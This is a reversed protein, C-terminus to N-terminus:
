DAYILMPAPDALDAEISRLFAADTDMSGGRTRRSIWLGLPMGVLAGFPGGFIVGIIPFAMGGQGDPLAAGALLMTGVSALGAGIVAGIADRMPYGKEGCRGAKIAGAGEM